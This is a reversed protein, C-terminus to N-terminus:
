GKRNHIDSLVCYLMLLAKDAHFQSLPISLEYSLYVIFKTNSILYANPETFELSLFLHLFISQM